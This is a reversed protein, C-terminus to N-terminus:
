DGRTMCLGRRTNSRSLPNVGRRWWRWTEGTGRGSQNNDEADAEAEAEARERARRQKKKTKRTKRQAMTYIIIIKLSLTLLYDVGIDTLASATDYLYVSFENPSPRSQLYVPPNYTSGVV